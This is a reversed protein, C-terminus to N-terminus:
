SARGEERTIVPQEGLGFVHNCHCPFGCLFEGLHSMPHVTLACVCVCWEWETLTIYWHPEARIRVIYDCRKYKCHTVARSFALRSSRSACRRTSATCWAWTTSLSLSMFFRVLVQDVASASTFYVVDGFATDGMTYRCSPQGAHLPQKSFTVNPRHKDDVQQATASTWRRIWGATRQLCAPLTLVIVRHWTPTRKGFEAPALPKDRIAM